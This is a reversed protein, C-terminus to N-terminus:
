GLAAGFELQCRNDRGYVSPQIVVVRTIGLTAYLKRAADVGAAAPTYDRDEVCPFHSADGFLHMHTDTANGPLAFSPLAPNPDPPLCPKTM